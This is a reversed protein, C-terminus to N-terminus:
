PRKNRWGYRSSFVWGAAELLEYIEVACGGYDPRPTDPFESIWAAYAGEIKAKGPWRRRTVEDATERGDGYFKTTTNTTRHAM